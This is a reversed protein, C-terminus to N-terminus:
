AEKSLNRVWEVMHDASLVITPTGDEFYITYELDIGNVDFVYRKQPTCEIGYRFKHFIYINMGRAILENKITFISM